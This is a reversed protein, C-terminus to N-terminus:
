QLAEMMRAHLPDRGMERITNRMESNAMMDVMAKQARPRVPVEGDGPAPAYGPGYTDYGTAHGPKGHYQDHAAADGPVVM